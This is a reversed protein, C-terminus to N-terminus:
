IEYKVIGQGEVAWEYEIGSYLLISLSISLRKVLEYGLTFNGNFAGRINRTKEDFIDGTLYISTVLKKVIRATGGARIEIFDEDGEMWLRRISASLYFRGDELYKEGSLSISHGKKGSNTYLSFEYEPKLIIRYIFFESSVGSKFEEGFSFVSLVSQNGLFASSSLYNAKVSLRRWIDFSPSCTLIVSSDYFKNYTIEYSLYGSLTFKNSFYYWGDIGLRNFHIDDREKQLFYSIGTEAKEWRHGARIGTLWDGKMSGDLNEVPVGGYIDLLSGSKTRFTFRLGDIQEMLASAGSNVFIRGGYLDFIKNPYSYKIYGYIINGNKREGKWYDYLQVDGWLSFSVEVDGKKAFSEYGKVSLFEYVPMLRATEEGRSEEYLMFITRSSVDFSFSLSSLPFLIFILYTYIFFGKM